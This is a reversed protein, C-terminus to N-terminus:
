VEIQSLNLGGLPHNSKGAIERNIGWNGSQTIGIHYRTHYWQPM